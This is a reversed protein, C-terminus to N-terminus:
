DAVCLMEPLLSVIIEINAVMRLKHLIQSLNMLDLSLLITRVDRLRAMSCSEGRHLQLTLATSPYKTKPIM